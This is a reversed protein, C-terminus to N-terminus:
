TPPMYVSTINEVEGWSFLVLFPGIWGAVTKYTASIRYEEGVNFNHTGILTWEVTAGGFTKATVYTHEGFLTSQEVTAVICSGESHSGNIAFAISGSVGVFASFVIV